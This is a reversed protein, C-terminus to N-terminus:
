TFFMFALPVVTKLAMLRVLHLMSVRFPEKDYHIALATMVTVGGPAAALFSVPLDWGALRHIVWAIGLSTLFIVGTSFLVPWILDGSALTQGTEPGFHASVMIGVGVLLPNFLRPHLTRVPLGAVSAAAVALMSGVMIGAPVGLPILVAAGAVAVLLTLALQQPRDTLYRGVERCADLTGTYAPQPTGTASGAVPESVFWTEFLLPFLAVTAVMRVTQMVIVVAVDAETAMSLVMMEPLGGMSSSLVATYTDLWTLRALLTGFLFVVALAWACILVAPVLLSRLDRVTDRTIKTGIYLGLVIQVVPSLYEPSAPIPVELARLTGIVVLTGLLPPVPARLRAFVAWGVLGLAALVLLDLFGRILFQLSELIM